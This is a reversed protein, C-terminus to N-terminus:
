ALQAGKSIPSEEHQKAWQARAKNTGAACVGGSRIQVKMVDLCLAESLLGSESANNKVTKGAQVGASIGRV